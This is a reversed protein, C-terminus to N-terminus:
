QARGILSESSGSGGVLSSHEWLPQHGISESTVIIEVRTNMRREQATTNPGLPRSDGFGAATVVNSALGAAVLTRRVTSAREVSLAEGDANASYGEVRVTLAPYRALVRGLAMVRDAAADAFAGGRFSEDSVTATLGRGSDLSPLAVKMENLIRARLTRQRTIAETQRNEAAQEQASRSLGTEHARAQADRAQTELTAARLAAADTEARSRAASAAEAQARASAARSEAERAQALADERAQQASALEARTRSIEANAVNLRDQDQRQAAVLRADEATQAAERAIQVVQRYDGKRAQIQQATTLLQQAHAYIDPAFREGGISAAISLANQAQYLETVAEYQHMSLKPGNVVTPTNSAQMTYQGRPLLEFKANLQEITGVTDPRVENEAVVVDSPMRVASYPEATVVLAFAQLDTTVHLKAHNSTDSVLEGINHPRGEPTIAWLVYTLYEPGFRQTPQLGEIKADIDVHGQRAEVIAEGKAYPLLVTGRFDIMTPGSRYQYNIAKVTRDVVTVRYLPVNGGNPTPVAPPAPPQAFLAPALFLPASLAGFKTLSKMLRDM